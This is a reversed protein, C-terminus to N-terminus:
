DLKSNLVMPSRGYAGLHWQGHKRCSATERPDTVPPSDPEVKYHRHSTLCFAQGGELEKRMKSISVRIPYGSPNGM